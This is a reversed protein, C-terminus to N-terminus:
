PLSQYIMPSGKATVSHSAAIGHREVPESHWPSCLRVGCKPEMDESFRRWTRCRDERGTGEAMRLERSRVLDDRQANSSTKTPHPQEWSAPSGSVSWFYCARAWRSHDCSTQSQLFINREPDWRRVEVGLLLMPPSPNGRLNCLFIYLVKFFPLGPSFYGSESIGVLFQISKLINM